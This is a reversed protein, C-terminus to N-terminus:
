WALARRLLDKDINGGTFILGVKKGQNLEKERLLAALGAAGAGEAVNHTDTFYHAIAQLIEEDSVDVIRELQGLMLDLAEQSPNRVALGDALTDASNTGICKGAAFSLQYTNANESVVGVIETKLGLANRACIVGSAGSGLGIPVYVRDLDPVARFLELAYTSVGKVLDMHFSPLLHLERERALEVAREVSEDFDRGYIVLEAGLAEMAANKEPNNGVPVVIVAQLNNRAAAFAVSQGHNGRTAACVGQLGPKRQKLNALYILGGRVKFAGTPNHNEHKVWVECDCRHNLLPWSIQATPQIVKYISDATLEIEQLTPLV